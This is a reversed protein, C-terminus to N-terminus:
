ATMKAALKIEDPRVIGYRRAGDLYMQVAATDGSQHAKWALRLEDVVTVRRVAEAAFADQRTVKFGLIRSACTTGYQGIEGEEDAVIVTGRLEMRGCKDCETQENNIGIMRLTTTAATM